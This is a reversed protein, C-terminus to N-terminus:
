INTWPLDVRKFCLSDCIEISLVSYSYFQALFLLVKSDNQDKPSFPSLGLAFFGYDKAKEFFSIALDDRHSTPRM